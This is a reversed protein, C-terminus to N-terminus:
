TNEYKSCGFARSTVATLPVRACPAGSETVDPDPGGRAATDRRPRSCSSVRTMHGSGPSLGHMPWRRWTPTRGSTVHAARPPMEPVTVELTAPSAWGILLSPQTSQSRGPTSCSCPRREQRATSPGASGILPAAQGKWCSAAPIATGCRTSRSQKRTPSLQGCPRWGRRMSCVPRCTCRHRCWAGRALTPALSWLPSRGLHFTAWRSSTPSRGAALARSLITPPSTLVCLSSSRISTASRRASTAAPASCTSHATTPAM